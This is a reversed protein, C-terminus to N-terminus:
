TTNAVSLEFDDVRSARALSFWTIEFSWSEGAPLDTVNTYNDGLVVGDGDYFKAVAAVYGETADSTNEITGTVIAEDESVEMEVDNPTLHDPEDGSREAFEGNIEYSDVDAANSGIYPIRAEWTEGAGLSVLVSSSNDLYNEDTDYWDVTLQINGSSADGTNEVTAEVYAETSYQGESVTLEHGSIEPNAEGSSNGNSGNGSTNNDSGNGGEMDETGDSSCGALLTTFAIGGGLLLKRREM